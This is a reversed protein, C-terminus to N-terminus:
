RYFTLGAGLELGRERSLNRSNTALALDLGFSGIRIGSGGTYQVLRNADLYLGGRLPVPGFWTEAGLHGTTAWVGRVVDAAVLFRGLRAAVNGTITTPVSNSYARDRAIVQQVTEGTTTDSSAVSERARWDFRTGLDNVGVGVEFGGGVWVTGVDFGRGFRGGDPGADFYHGTYRVDVPESAFLTDATTFAVGNEAEGLALGRMLKVRAGAYLGTGGHRPDGHRVLPGAWGLHVGAAAIGHAEDHMSYSTNPTFEAGHIAAQLEDSFSLDNEYYVLPAVAVFFRRIGIGPAPGNLISGARTHNEPFISKVDGLDVALHDKGVAISIDNAPPDPTVLQLNWPPNYALNALEYINFEPKDPDFEPPDSLVPIIGIPLTIGSGSNPAPPVGRYAVNAADSGPGGGALIVGGMAMRRASLLQAGAPEAGALAALLLLLLVRRLM